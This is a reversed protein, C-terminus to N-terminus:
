VHARGIKGLARLNKSPETIIINQGIMSEQM